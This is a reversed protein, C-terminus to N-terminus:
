SAVLCDGFYVNLLNFVRAVVDVSGQFVQTNSKLGFTIHLLKTSGSTHIASKTIDGATMTVQGYEEVLDIKSLDVTIKLTPTLDHIQLMVYRDCAIKTNLRQYDSTLCWGDTM